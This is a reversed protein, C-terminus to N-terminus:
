EPAATERRDSGMSVPPMAGERALALYAVLASASLAAIVVAM